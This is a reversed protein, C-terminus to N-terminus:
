TPLRAGAANWIWSNRSAAASDRTCGKPGCGRPLVPLLGEEIRDALPLPWALEDQRKVLELPDGLGARFERRHELLAPVAVPPAGALHDQDPAAGDDAEHLPLHQALLAREKAAACRLDLQLGEAVLLCREEM